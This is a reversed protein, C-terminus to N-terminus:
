VFSQWTWLVRSEGRAFRRYMSQWHVDKANAARLRFTVRGNAAVEPSHLDPGTPTGNQNSSSGPVQARLTTILVSILIGVASKFSMRDEWSKFCYKGGFRSGVKCQPIEKASKGV